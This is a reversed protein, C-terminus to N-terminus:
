AAPGGLAESSTYQSLPSKQARLEQTKAVSRPPKGNRQVRGRFARQRETNQRREAQQRAAETRYKRPRGGKRTKSPTDDGRCEHSCWEGSDGQRTFRVPGLIVGCRDCVSDVFVGHRELLERSQQVSLHM